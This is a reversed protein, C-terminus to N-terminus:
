EQSEVTDREARLREVEEVLAAIQEHAERLQENPDEGSPTFRSVEFHCERAEHRQRIANLDATM